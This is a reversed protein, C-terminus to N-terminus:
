FIILLKSSWLVFWCPKHPWSPPSGLLFLFFKNMWKDMIRYPISLEQHFPDLWVLNWFSGTSPPTRLVSPQSPSHSPLSAPSVLHAESSLSEERHAFVGSPKRVGVPDSTIQRLDRKFLLILLGLNFLELITVEAREAWVGVVNGVLPQGTAVSM